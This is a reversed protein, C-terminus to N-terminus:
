FRSHGFRKLIKEYRRRMKKRMLTFIWGKVYFKQRLLKLWVHKNGIWVQPAEQQNRGDSHEDNFYAEQLTYHETQVLDGIEISTMKPIDRFNIIHFLTKPFLDCLSEAFHVIESYPDTRHMIVGVAHSQNLKEITNRTRRRIKEYFAPLQYELPINAAFDHLSIMGNQKDIAGNTSHDFHACRFMEEGGTKLIHLYDNLTYNKMWDCPSSFKRMNLRKTYYAARCEAGASIVFDVTQRSLRKIM